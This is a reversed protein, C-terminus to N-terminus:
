TRAKHVVHNVLPDHGKDTYKFDEKINALQIFMSRVKDNVNHAPSFKATTNIELGKEKESANIPNRGIKYEMGKRSEGFKVVSCKYKNASFELKWRQSWKFLKKIDEQYESCPEEDHYPRSVKADDDCMNLDGDTKIDDM